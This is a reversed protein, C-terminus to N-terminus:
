FPLDEDDENITYFGDGSEEKTPPVDLNQTRKSNVPRKTKQTQQSDNDALEFAFITMNNYVKNDKKSFVNSIKGSIIKISDKEELQKANQVCNGVFMANWSSYVKNGDKDKDSTSVQARVYKEAPDLKWVKAFPSFGREGFPVAM